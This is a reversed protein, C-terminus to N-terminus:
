NYIGKISKGQMVREISKKLVQRFPMRKEIQQAAMQAVLAASIWPNKVERIEIKIEKGGQSSPSAPKTKDNKKLNLGLKKQITEKLKEAGEGGRGIILGPRATHIIITMKNISSEIEINEVSAEALKEKLFERILFDEEFRQALNKGYFGRISWDEMGKTRYSKPHVKHAM